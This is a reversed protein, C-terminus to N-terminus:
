RRNIIEIELEYTPNQRLVETLTRMGRVKSKVMSFDIQLLGDQTKWSKRNLIRIHSKADMAPGSFDRRVDEEKRLTFSLGAEPVDVRDM